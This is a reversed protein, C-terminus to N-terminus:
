EKDEKLKDKKEKKPAPDEKPEQARLMKLIHAGNQMAKLDEYRSERYAIRHKNLIKM